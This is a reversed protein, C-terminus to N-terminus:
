RGVSGHTGLPLQLASQGVEADFQKKKVRNAERLMEWENPLMDGHSIEFESDKVGHLLMNMRALNYTTINKKAFFIGIGPLDIQHRM